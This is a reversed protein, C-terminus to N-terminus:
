LATSTSRNVLGNILYGGGDPLRDDVPARLSYFNYQPHVGYNLMTDLCADTSDAYLDCGVGLDDTFSLNQYWRQNYTVEASLRPLIERQLGLGLQWESRRKDWGSLLNQGSRACYDRVAQPIGTETRGCHTTALGIADGTEDLLYPDRGFRRFDQAGVSGCRDGLTTHVEPNSWDCNVIRDGNLDEWDRSLSNLTRRAPNANSYTDQFGAAALYKGMNVKVATKGDGFLDYAASVRPTVNQYHVGDSAPTCYGAPVYIDQNLCTAGYGSTANDYRLAGNLTLRRITWQDQVYLAHTTVREDYTRPGASIQVSSPVPRRAANFPDTPYYLSTNGCTSAAPNLANFCTTGPTTYNYILRPDNPYVNQKQFYFAGEWGIKANHSGTVYSAALRTRWNDFNDLNSSGISGSRLATFAGGADQNLRTAVEDLGATTGVENIQPINQPNTLYRHKTFVYHQMAANVGGEFLLKSTFPNTWSAQLLRNPYTHVSWMAEPSWYNAVTGDCPDQCADQEDWFLNIKNKQTAQWTFRASGNRWTNTYTLPPGSRDPQYNAGWIGANRNYYINQTLEQEKGQTRATAYFWLRDRLIPGGYAGTFDHDSVIRNAQAAPAGTLPNGRHTGGNNDFWSKETYHAYFNGAFRNGGTRPVINISTGGTESEGLAGSLSFSVEQANTVDAIYGGLAGSVPNSATNLVMGDVMMRGQRLGDADNQATHANFSFVNPSCWTGLGGVCVSATSNIVGTQFTVGPVLTMISSVNRTAPLEKLDDGTFVTTQRATQVDVTAVEAVVQVEQTLNGIQLQANVPVVLDSSVVVGDRRATSFGQLTFTVTYTGIPLATIQFRGSGDSTGTRVKEILAPSTVEVVVGPLAAGTADRTTGAITGTQALVPLPLLVLFVTGVLLLRLRAM